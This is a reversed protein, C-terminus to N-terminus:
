KAVTYQDEFELVKVKVMEELMENTKLNWRVDFM